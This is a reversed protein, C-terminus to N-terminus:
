ILAIFFFFFFSLILNLIILEICIANQHPLYKKVSFVFLLIFLLHSVSTARVKETWLLGTITSENSSMYWARPVIIVTLANRSICACWNGIIPTGLARPATLFRPRQLGWAHFFSKNSVKHTSSSRWRSCRPLQACCRRRAGPARGQAVRPGIGQLSEQQYCSARAHYFRASFAADRGTDQRQRRRKTEVNFSACEQRGEKQAELPSSQAWGISVRSRLAVLCESSQVRGGKKSGVKKGRTM